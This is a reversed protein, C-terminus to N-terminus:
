EVIQSNMSCVKLKRDLRHHNKTAETNAKRVDELEIEVIKIKGELSKM